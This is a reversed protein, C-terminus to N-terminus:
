NPPISCSWITWTTSPCRLFSSCSDAPVMDGAALIVLDGPVLLKLPLGTQKGDRVVTAHSSVMAKLKQAAHDARMEQFYRLVIGLIVMAFIILASTSDATLWSVVGLIALLIVLPNTLQKWLRIPWSLPKGRAIENYGYQRLRTGADDTTLGGTSFRLGAQLTELPLEIGTSLTRYKAPPTKQTFM